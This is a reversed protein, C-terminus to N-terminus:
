GPVDLLATTIGLTKVLAVLNPVGDPLIEHHLGFADLRREIGGGGETAVYVVEGQRVKHGHWPLGLAVHLAIDLAVFTKAHGSEGYNLSLAGRDVVDKILPERKPEQWM